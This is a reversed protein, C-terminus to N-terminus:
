VETLEWSAIVGDTVVPRFTYATGTSTDVVTADDNRSKITMLPRLPEEFEFVGYALDGDTLSASTFSLGDEAIVADTIPTESGYKYLEKVATIAKTLTFKDTYIGIDPFWPEYTVTGESLALFQGNTEVETDYATTIALGGAAVRYQHYYKGNRYFIKDYLINNAYLPETNFYMKSEVFPEYDTAVSGLEVQYETVKNVDVYDYGSFRIYKANYLTTYNLGTSNATRKINIYNSDFEAIIYYETGSTAGGYRKISYTAGGIVPIYDPTATRTTSKVLTGTATLSMNRLFVGNFLNKGVSRICGVGGFTKTGGFYTPLLKALQAESLDQLGHATLNIVLADAVAGTDNTITMDSGTGTLKAKHLSDWYVNNLISTFAVTGTNVVDKGNVLNEVTVGDVGVTGVGVSNKALAVDGYDSVTLYPANSNEIASKKLSDIEDMLLKKEIELSTIDAKLLLAATVANVATVDAKDSLKVGSDKLKDGAIGDFIPINGDVASELANIVADADAKLALADAVDSADAKLALADDVDAINSKLALAANVDTVNAKSALAAVGPYEHAESWTVGNDGSQREYVAGTADTTWTTGDVSYQWITNPAADGKDGKYGMLGRGQVIVTVPRRIVNLVTM